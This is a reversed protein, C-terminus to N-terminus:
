PPRAGAGSHCPRPGPRPPGGPRTRGHGPPRGRPRRASPGRGLCGGGGGGGGGLAQGSGPAVGDRHRHVGHRVGVGGHPLRVLVVVAAAPRQLPQGAPRACDGVGVRHRAGHRHHRLPEAGLVGHHGRDRGPRSGLRRGGPLVPGLRRRQHLGDVVLVRARARLAGAVLGLATARDGRDLRGVLPNTDVTGARRHRREALAALGFRQDGLAGPATRRDHPHRRGRARVHGPRHALARMWRARGRGVRPIAGGQDCLRLARSVVRGALSQLFLRVGRGADLVPERWLHHVHLRVPVAPHSSGAVHSAPCPAPLVPWVGLCLRPAHGFRSDDGAQVRRRLPDGLWRDRHVPRSDHLLLHVPPLRRVLRSGLRHPPRPECADRPVQADCHARGHGRGHDDHEHAAPRPSAAVAHRRHRQRDHDGHHSGAGVM